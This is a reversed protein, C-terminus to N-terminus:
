SCGWARVEAKEETEYHEKMEIDVDHICKTLFVDSCFLECLLDHGNQGGGMGTVWSSEVGPVQELTTTRLKHTTVGKPDFSGKM